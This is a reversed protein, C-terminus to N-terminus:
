GPTDQPATGTTAPRSEDLLERAVDRLKTNSRQSRDRLVRFAEEEDVGRVAMLFGKAREIVARGAIAEQLQTVLQQSARYVSANSLAVSAQAAFLTVLALDDPGLGDMEDSYLNLAGFTGDARQLPAALVSRVGHLTAADVFAPYDHVLDSMTAHVVQGTRAADLCPGVGTDYQGRDVDLMWPVTYAATSFRGEHLLTVSAAACGPLTRVAVDVVRQLTEELSEEQLLLGSLEAVAAVLGDTLSDRDTTSM